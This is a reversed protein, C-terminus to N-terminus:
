PTAISEAIQVLQDLAVDHSTVLHFVAGDAWVVVAPMRGDPDDPAPEPGHDYLRAENGGITAPRPDAGYSTDIALTSAAASDPTARQSVLFTGYHAELTRDIIPLERRKHDYAHLRISEVTRGATHGPEVPVFALQAAAAAWSEVSIFHPNAVM